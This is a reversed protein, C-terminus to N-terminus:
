VNSFMRIPKGSYKKLIEETSLWETKGTAKYVVYLCGNAFQSGNKEPILNFGYFDRYEVGNLMKMNLNNSLAIKLAQKKSMIAM